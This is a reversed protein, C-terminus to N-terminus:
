GGDKSKGKGDGPVGGNGKGNDSGGNGSADTSGDSTDSSQDKSNSDSGSGDSGNKGSADSVEGGSVVKGKADTIPHLVGTGGVSLPQDKGGSAHQGVLVDVFTHDAVDEVGVKGRTVDVQSSTAGSMVTFKTGKVVAVLFPTAVAFHKVNEVNAEIAVKGAVESVTTFRQGARDHIQLQTDGFVDITEGDRAFQVNGDALTRIARSDSVIDGRALHVWQGDQQALVNGRLKVAVWDDAMAVTTFM